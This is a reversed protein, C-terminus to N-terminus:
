INGVPQRIVPTNVTSGNGLAIEPVKVTQEPEVVDSLSAPPPVQLLLLVLTAIIPDVVPITVPSITATVLVAVIM